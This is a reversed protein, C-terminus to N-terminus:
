RILNSLEELPSGGCKDQLIWVGLPTNKDQGDGYGKKGEDKRGNEMLGKNKTNINKNQEELKLEAEKMMNTEKIDKLEVIHMM